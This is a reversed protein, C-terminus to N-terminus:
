SKQTCTPTVIILSLLFLIPSDSTLGVENPKSKASGYRCIISGGIKVAHNYRSLMQVSDYINTDSPLPLGVRQM